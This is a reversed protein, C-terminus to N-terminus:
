VGTMRNKKEALLNRMKDIESKLKTESMKFGVIENKDNRIANGALASSTAQLM